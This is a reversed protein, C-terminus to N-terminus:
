DSVPYKRIVDYLIEDFDELNHNLCFNVMKILSIGEKTKSQNYDYLFKNIINFKEMKTMSIFGIIDM